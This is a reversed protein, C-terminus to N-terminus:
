EKVGFLVDGADKPFTSGWDAVFQADAEPTSPNQVVAIYYRIGEWNDDTRAIGILGRNTFWRIDLLTM